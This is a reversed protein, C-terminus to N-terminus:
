HGDCRGCELQHKEEFGVNKTKQNTIMLQIKIKLNQSDQHKKVSKITTNLGLFVSFLKLYLKTPQINGVIIEKTSAEQRQAKM